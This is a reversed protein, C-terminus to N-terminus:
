NVNLNVVIRVFFDVSKTDFYKILMRNIEFRLFKLSLQSTKLAVTKDTFGM